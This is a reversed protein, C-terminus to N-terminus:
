VGVHHFISWPVAAPIGTRAGPPSIPTPLSFGLRLYGSQKLLASHLAVHDTFCLPSHHESPSHPKHCHSLNSLPLSRSVAAALALRLHTSIIADKGKPVRMRRWARVSLGLLIWERTGDLRGM